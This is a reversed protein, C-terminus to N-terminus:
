VQVLRPAVQALGLVVQAWSLQVQALVQPQPAPWLASSSSQALSAQLYTISLHTKTNSNSVAIHIALSHFSLRISPRMLTTMASFSNASRSFSLLRSEPSASM